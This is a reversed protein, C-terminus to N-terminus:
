QEVYIWSRKEFDNRLAELTRVAKSWNNFSEVVVLKFGYKNQLIKTNFGKEQVYKNYSDLYGPNKFSGVVVHYHYGSSQVQGSQRVSDLLKRHDRRLDTLQDELKKISDALRLSDQKKQYILLSDQENSFMDKKQFFDCSQQFIPVTIFILLLLKKM